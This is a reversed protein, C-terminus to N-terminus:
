PKSVKKGGTRIALKLAADREINLRKQQEESGGAKHCAMSLARRLEKVQHTTFARDGLGLIPFRAYGALGGQQKQLAANAAQLKAHDTPASTSRPACRTM